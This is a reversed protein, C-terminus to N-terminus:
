AVRPVRLVANHGGFPNPVTEKAEPDPRWCGDVIFRYEYDGPPLELEVTWLGKTLARLPTADPRWDNFTGAVYVSEADPAHCRLAVAAGRGPISAPPSKKARKTKM